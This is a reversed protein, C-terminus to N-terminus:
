DIFGRWIKGKDDRLVLGYGDAVGTVTQGKHDRFTYRVLDDDGREASGKWVNGLQDRLLIYEGHGFGTLRINGVKDEFTFFGGPDKTQQRKNRYIM